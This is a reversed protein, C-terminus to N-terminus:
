PLFGVIPFKDERMAPEKRTLRRQRRLRLLIRRTRRPTRLRRLRLRRSWARLVRRWLARLEDRCGPRQGRLVRSGADGGAGDGDLWDGYGGYGGVDNEENEEVEQFKTTINEIISTYRTDTDFIHRSLIKKYKKTYIREGDRDLFLLPLLHWYFVLSINGLTWLCRKQGRFYM